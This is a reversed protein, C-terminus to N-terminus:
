INHIRYLMTINFLQPEHTFHGDKFKDYFRRIYQAYSNITSKVQMVYKILEFKSQQGKLIYHVTVRWEVETIHSTTIHSTPTALLQHCCGKLTCESLTQKTQRVMCLAESASVYEGDAHKIPFLYCVPDFWICSLAIRNIVHNGCPSKPTKNHNCNESNSIVNEAEM